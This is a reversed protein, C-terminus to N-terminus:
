EGDREGGSAQARDLAERLRRADEPGLLDLAEETAAEAREARRQWEDRQRALDTIGSEPRPSTPKLYGEEPTCIGAATLGGLLAVHLDDRERELSEIAASARGMLAWDAKGDRIVEEFRQVLDSHDAM